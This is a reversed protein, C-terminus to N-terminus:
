KIKKGTNRALTVIILTVVAIAAVSACVILISQIPSVSISSSTTGINERVFAEEPLSDSKFVIVRDYWKQKKFSFAACDIDNDLAEVPLTYAYKGDADESYYIYDNDSAELAQKSTGMYLKEYGKGSLTVVATMDSDSVTLECKVIKFMSSSSTVEIDYTGDNLGSAYIPAVTKQSDAFVINASLSVVVVATCLISLVKKIFKM